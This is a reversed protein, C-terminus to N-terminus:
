YRLAPGLDMPTQGSPFTSPVPTNQYQDGQRALFGLAVMAYAFIRLTRRRIGTRQASTDLPPPRPQWPWLSGSKM